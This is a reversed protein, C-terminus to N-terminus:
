DVALYILIIIGSDLHEELRDFGLYDPPSRPGCTAQGLDGQKSVDVTEVVQAASVWGKAPFAWQGILSLGSSHAHSRFSLAIPGSGRAREGAAGHDRDTTKADTPGVRAQSAPGYPVARYSTQLATAPNFQARDLKVSSSLKLKM